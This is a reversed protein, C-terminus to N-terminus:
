SQHLINKYQECETWLSEINSESESNSCSGSLIYQGVSSVMEIKGARKNGGIGNYTRNRIRNKEDRRKTKYVEKCRVIM